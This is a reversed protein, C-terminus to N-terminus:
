TMLIHIANYARLLNIKSFYHAGISNLNWHCISFSQGSNPRPGSNSEIDGCLVLLNFKGSFNALFSSSFRFYFLHTMFNWLLIINCCSFQDLLTLFTVNVILIIYVLANKSFNVLINYIM